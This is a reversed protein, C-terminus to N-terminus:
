FGLLLLVQNLAHRDVGRLDLSHISTNAFEGLRQFGIALEVVCQDEEDGVVTRASFTAFEAEFAARPSSEARAHGAFLKATITNLLIYVNILKQNHYNCSLYKPM